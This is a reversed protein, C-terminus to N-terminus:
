RHGFFRHVEAKIAIDIVTVAILPCALIDIEDFRKPVTHLVPRDQQIPLGTIESIRMTNMPDIVCTVSVLLGTASPLRSCATSQSAPLVAITTPALRPRPRPVTVLM